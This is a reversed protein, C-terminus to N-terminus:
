SAALAGASPRLICCPRSSACSRTSPAPRHPCHPPAPPHIPSGQHPPPQPPADSHRGSSPPRSAPSNLTTCPQQFRSRTLSFTPTDQPYQQNLHILTPIGGINSRSDQHHPHDYTHISWCNIFLRVISRGADISLHLALTSPDVHGATSRCDTTHRGFIFALARQLSFFWSFWWM